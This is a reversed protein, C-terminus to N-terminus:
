QTGIGIAAFDGPLLHWHFSDKKSDGERNSDARSGLGAPNRSALGFVVDSFSLCNASLHYACPVGRSALALRRKQVEIFWIRVLYECDQNPALVAGLETRGFRFIAVLVHAHRALDRTVATHRLNDRSFGTPDNRLLSFKFHYGECGKSSSRETIPESSGISSPM